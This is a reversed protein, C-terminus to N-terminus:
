GTSKACRRRMPPLAPAAGPQRSQCATFRQTLLLLFATIAPIPMGGWYAILLLTVFLLAVLTDIAPHVLANLYSAAGMSRWLQEIALEARHEERSEQGFLRIVRPGRPPDPPSAM